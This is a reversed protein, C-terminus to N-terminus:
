LTGDFFRQKIEGLIESTSIGDHYPLRRLIKRTIAPAFEEDWGDGCYVYHDPQYKQLQVELADAGFPLFDIHAEDVYRVAVVQKLREDQGLVPRRKYAAVADDCHVLVILYDGFSKAERLMQLHNSHMLDFVGTTLVVSRRTM